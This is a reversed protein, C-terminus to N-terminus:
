SMDLEEWACGGGSRLKGGDSIERKRYKRAKKQNEKNKLGDKTTLTVVEAM